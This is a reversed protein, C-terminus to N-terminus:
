TKTGAGQAGAGQAGAVDEIKGVSKIRPKTWQKRKVPEKTMALEM